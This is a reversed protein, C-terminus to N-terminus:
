FASEGEWVAHIISLRSETPKKIAQLKFRPDAFDFLQQWDEADREKPCVYRASREKYPSLASPPPLCMDSVVVRAGKKLAPILNRLIWRLLYVDAGKVPQEDFFNHAMFRLREGSKLGDPVETDQVVEPLDQVICKIEPLYRAIDTSVTGRAGGIDVMVGKAADGWEFHEALLKPSWSPGAHMFTMADAMQLARKPDRGIADFMPIDTNNALSFSAENPEESGPWKQMADVCRATSPWMEDSLFGVFQRLIPIEALAKSSATYAVVGPSPERFIYSTM